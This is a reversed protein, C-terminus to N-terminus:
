GSLKRCNSIRCLDRFNNGSSIRRSETLWVPKANNALDRIFDKEYLRNMARTSERGARGERSLTLYLLALIVDDIKDRDVEM